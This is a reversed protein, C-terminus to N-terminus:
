QNAEAMCNQSSAGDYDCQYVRVWDVLVEAPFNNAVFGGANNDESLRGGVALNLMLYFNQDFPAHPHTEKSVAGSEWESSDLSWFLEDDVFWNIQDEGWEVAYVHYDDKSNEGGPITNRSSQFKNQPSVGGYHLAGLTRNEGESGSCEGCTAGLNVAEMIDIEGSAAWGGYVNDIPMMWFAPWTGQGKPLKMRASFRGYTWDALARTRVKGSTYQQTIQGGSGDPWGQPYQPGTYTEPYAKLRLLGNIVEINEPRDTYCQREENGGGWCSKEVEWKSRDLEDGLFEDSWALFWGKNSPHFDDGEPAASPVPLVAAQPPPPTPATSLPKSASGGCATLIAGMCIVAPLSTKLKLTM